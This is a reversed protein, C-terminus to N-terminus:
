LVAEAPNIVDTQVNLVNGDSNVSNDALYQESRLAPDPNNVDALDHVKRWGKYGIGRDADMNLDPFSAIGSAAESHLEACFHIADGFVENSSTNALDAFHATVDAAQDGAQKEVFDRYTPYTTSNFSMSGRAYREPTAMYYSKPAGQCHDHEMQSPDALPYILHSECEMGPLKFKKMPYLSYLTMAANGFIDPMQTNILHSSLYHSLESNFPYGWGALVVAQHLTLYASYLEQYALSVLFRLPAAGVTLINAAIFDVLAAALLLPSLIAAGLAKFVGIIGFSGSTPNTITGWIDGCNDVFQQWVEGIEDTFSYPVPQRLISANTAKMFWNVWIQYADKIDAILIEQGYLPGYPGNMTGYYTSQISSQIFSALDDPMIDSGDFLYKEGLKSTVLEGAGTYKNYFWADHINEAVKHRQAQTRYPGGAVINVFPHGVIDAAYHTLYGQAYARNMTNPASTNLLTSTFSGTRRYHMTDFWWWVSHFHGDQIPHQLVNFLDVNRTVFTELALTISSTLSQILASSDALGEELETLAASHEQVTDYVDAIADAADILEQPVADMIQQKIDELYNTVELVYHVFEGISPHVDKTNFFLFDPGQAGLYYAPSNAQTITLELTDRVDSAILHHVAPGPMVGEQTFSVTGAEMIWIREIRECIPTKRM